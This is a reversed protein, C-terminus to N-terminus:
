QIARLDGNNMRVKRVTIKKHHQAPLSVHINIFNGKEDEYLILQGYVDSLENKIYGYIAKLLSKDDVTFDAAIARMHLSYKTKAVRKNLYWDRYGSTINIPVKFFDRVRQLILTALLFLLFEQWDQKNKYMTRAYSPYTKSVYFEELSFNNTLDGM